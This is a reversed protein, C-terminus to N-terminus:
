HRHLSTKHDSTQQGVALFSESFWWDEVLGGEIGAFGSETGVFSSWSIDFGSLTQFFVIWDCNTWSIGTGHFDTGGLVSGTGVLGSGIGLIGTGDFGIGLFGTWVCNYGATGTSALESSDQPEM